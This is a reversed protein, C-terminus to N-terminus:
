RPRFWILVAGVIVSGPLEHFAVLLRRPSIMTDICRHAVIGFPKQLVIVHHRQEGRCLVCCSPVIQVDVRCIAGRMDSDPAAVM